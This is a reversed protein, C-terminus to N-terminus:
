ICTSDESVSPLLSCFKCLLGCLPVFFIAIPLSRFIQARIAGSFFLRCLGGCLYSVTISVAGEEVFGFHTANLFLCSYFMGQSIWSFFEEGM